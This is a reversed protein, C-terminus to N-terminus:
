VRTNSSISRGGDVAIIQGTVYPADALFLATQAIDEPTGLRAAPIQAMVENKAQSDLEQEPWLIAGPAIGNARIDPALDQALAKTMVYLGAKAMCYVSHDPLPHLAHVDVMNIICGNSQRLSPVCRQSLFLPARMNSGVLSDWDAMTITEMPTPYFSSANNILVDLRGYAACATAALAELQEQECLDAQLAVASGARQQNLKNVLAKAPEASGRYHLVTNFGHQHFQEAMCAGLRKASGSILVVKNNM